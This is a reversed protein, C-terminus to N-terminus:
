LFPTFIFRPAITSLSNAKSIKSCIKSTKEGHAAFLTSPYKQRFPSVLAEAIWARIGIVFLSLAYLDVIQYSRLYKIHIQGYGTTLM